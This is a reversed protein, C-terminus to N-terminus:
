LDTQEYKQKGICSPLPVWEGDVCEIIKSGHLAFSIHCQVELLDGHQYVAKRKGTVMGHSITPSAQCFKVNELFFSFIM